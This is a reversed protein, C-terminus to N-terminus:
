RAGAGSREPAQCRPCLGTLEVTRGTVAFGLAAAGGNLAQEIVPNHLEAAAGCESCLLFQSGHREEPHACGVFANRSEIRHILGHRRLFELARYVTPPAIPADSEAGLARLLEYAGVPAHGLWVLALVKRRLPTLRMGRRECLRAAAKLADSVCHGHNHRGPAFSVAATDFAKGQAESGEARGLARRQPESNAKKRAKAAGRPRAKRSNAGGPSAKGPVARRKM